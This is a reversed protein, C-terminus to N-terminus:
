TGVVINIGLDRSLELSFTSGLFTGFENVKLMRHFRLPGVKRWESPPEQQAFFRFCRLNSLTVSNALLGKIEDLSPSASLVFPRTGDSDLYNGSTLDFVVVLSVSPRIDRTSARRQKNNRPDDEETLDMQWARHFEAKMRPAHIAIGSASSSLRIKEDEMSKRAAALEAPWPDSLGQPDPAAYVEEILSEIDDPIGVSVRPLLALHTRLLVHREYIMRYDDFSPIESNGCDSEILALTPQAFLNPRSGRSHRHIRGSRQLLLDVPAIDSAMWDFDLDLSQEVVQTAVLVAKAPRKGDPGFKELVCEEIELRRGFPFRAHFLLVEVDPPLAARLEQFTRQAQDVTNRLVCACGGDGILNALTARLASAQIRELRLTRQNNTATAFTTEEIHPSGAHAITLRPYTVDCAGTLELGSYGQLLALRRKRPLTASLLVVNCGLAALWELLLDLLTSMYTDYAHVEDFIITKGALGFLRVFFHKTQLVALLTQDITGVGHHALLTQKKNAAFWDDAVVSGPADDEDFVTQAAARLQAYLDSLLAQGHSLHLNVRGSRTAELYEAMRRFMGNSTAMTPLAVYDGRGGQREWADALYLAAETKGEGMPAEILTLAPGTLAQAARAATVQLPRAPRGKLRYAFHESFAPLPLSVSNERWGLMQLSERAHKRAQSFYEGPSSGGQVQFGAPPFSDPNSGIWDAASTLGALLMLYSQDEGLGGGPPETPLGLLQALVDLLYDQCQQWAASGVVSATGETPQPFKGHHGAVCYALRLALKKSLGRRVLWRTLIPVTMAAHHSAKGLAHPFSPGLRQRLAAMQDPFNERLQFGPAAKGIDHAGVLFSVWRGCADLDGIGLAAALSRALPLGLVHRWIESAVLGVDILHCLLPHHGDPWSNRGLKAWFNLAAHM